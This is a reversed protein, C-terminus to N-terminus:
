INLETDYFVIIYTCLRHLFFCECLGKIELLNYETIIFDLINLIAVLTWIVYVHKYNKYSVINM